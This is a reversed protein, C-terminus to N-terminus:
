NDVCLYQVTSHNDQNLKRLNELQNKSGRVNWKLGQERNNILEPMISCFDEKADFEKACGAKVNGFNGQERMLFDTAVETNLPLQNIAGTIIEGDSLALRVAGKCTINAYSTISALLGLLLIFNKM